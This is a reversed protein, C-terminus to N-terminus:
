NHTMNPVVEENSGIEPDYHFLLNSLSLDAQGSHTAITVFPEWSDEEEAPYVDLVLAASTTANKPYWKAVSLLEELKKCVLENIDLYSSRVKTAPLITHEEKRRSFFAKIREPWSKERIDELLADMDIEFAEESGEPFFLFRGKRNSDNTM